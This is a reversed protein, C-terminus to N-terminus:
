AKKALAKLKEDREWKLLREMLEDMNGLLFEELQHVSGSSGLRGDTIRNDPFNYTRIKDSRDGSGVQTRRLERREKAKLEEYHEYLKARLWRWALERNRTQSRQDQCQVVINTPVHTLRVASQTKNVHQGGPGGASYTDIRVDQPDIEVEVEEAQPLVAVTAISTHIRGSAETKPVRQVRHAGTEFKLYKYVDEGEIALTGYKLGGLDTHVVDILQVDWGRRQAFKVYMDLLERAFLSAEEGGVGPRIEMIVSRASQADTSLALEELKAVLESERRELQLLEVEAEKKMEPDLLLAQVDKKQLQVGELEKFPTVLKSLQGREKMLAAYQAPQSLVGPDQILREIEDFRAAKQRVQDLM